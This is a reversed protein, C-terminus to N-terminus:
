MKITSTAYYEITKNALIAMYKNQLQELRANLLNNHATLLELPNVKGLEFQRETLEATLEAATLRSKGADYKAVANESDIYLGDITQQLDSYLSERDLDAEMTALNAKAVARRTANGDYIPVSLSVGVNENLGNWMQRGWGSGGGSNYGSGVGGRLSIQPMYGAKAIKVDTELIEKSLDNSRFAPLWSAAYDYVFNKDPLNMYLDADPFDPDVVDIEADLGLGILVKIKSRASALNAKAQAVGYEDQARQSEIQAYDVKSSRGSEYLRKAREAQVESVELTKEAIAVAEKAYLIDLYCQLVGITLVKERDLGALEQQRRVLKASTLRYKRVNGEWVTWSADIGYQSGYVNKGDEAAPTNTFSHDTSFGVSPLWADKASVVDEDAELISLYIKKIDTDTAIANDLCQRYTWVANKVEPVEEVIDKVTVAVYRNETEASVIYSSSLAIGLALIVRKM